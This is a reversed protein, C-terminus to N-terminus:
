IVERFGAAAPHGGGGEFAALASVDLDGRSRLSWTRTGQGDSYVAAFPTEPYDALIREGLESQLVPSNVVMVAHGCVWAEGVTRMATDLLKGQYRLLAKGSDAIYERGAAFEFQRELEGWNVFTYELSAIYASIERSMDLEWRWCDRDEVYRVLDPATHAPLGYGMKPEDFYLWTWYAGCHDENIWVTPLDLWEALKRRASEHHDLIVINQRGLIQAMEDYVQPEPSFDVFYVREAGQHETLLEGYAKAAYLVGKVGLQKYAYYAATFGDACGRHYYVVTKETQGM